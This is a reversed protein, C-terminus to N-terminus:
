IDITQPPKNKRDGDRAKRRRMIFRAILMAIQLAILFLLVAIVGELLTPSM